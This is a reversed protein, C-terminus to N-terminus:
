KEGGEMEVVKTLRDRFAVIDDFTFEYDIFTENFSILYVPEKDPTKEVDFIKTIM